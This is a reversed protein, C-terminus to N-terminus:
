FTEIDQSFANSFPEFVAGFTALFKCRAKHAEAIARLASTFGAKPTPLPDFWFQESRAYAKQKIGFASM